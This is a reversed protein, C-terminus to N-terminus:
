QTFRQIIQSKENLYTADDYWGTKKLVTVTYASRYMCHKLKSRSSEPYIHGGTNLQEENIDSTECKMRETM